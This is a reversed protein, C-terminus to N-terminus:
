LVLAMLSKKESSKQVTKKTKWNFVFSGLGQNCNRCMDISDREHILRKRFKQYSDGQWIQEFSKDSNINGLDFTGNKDFCCPVVQGDWNILTSKWVRPCSKRTQNKVKLTQGDYDYRRYKDDSPLWEEAEQTNHVEINKILLRDVGIGNRGHVYGPHDVGTYVASRHNAFGAGSRGPASGQGM